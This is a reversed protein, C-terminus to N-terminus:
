KGGNWYWLGLMLLGMGVVYVLVPGVYGSM